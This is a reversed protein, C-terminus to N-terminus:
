QLQTYESTFAEYFYDHIDNSNVISAKLIGKFIGCKM